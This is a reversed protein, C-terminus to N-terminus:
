RWSYPLPDIPDRSITEGPDNGSAFTSFGIAQRSLLSPNRELQDRFNAFAREDEYDIPWSAVGDGLDDWFPFPLLWQVGYCILMRPIERAKERYWACADTGVFQGPAVHRFIAKLDCPRLIQDVTQFLLRWHREESVAEGSFLSTGFDIILFEPLHWHGLRYCEADPRVLVNNWHLDGHIIGKNALSINVDLLSTALSIRTLLNPRSDVLWQKCSLGDFYDMVCYFHGAIEGAEIVNVVHKTGANFAKRAEEVGQAFKNRRDSQSAASWIKIARRTPLHRHEAFCVIGNAGNGITRVLNYNPVEFRNGDSDVLQGDVLILQTM